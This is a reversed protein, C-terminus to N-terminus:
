REKERERNRERISQALADPDAPAVLKDSTTATERTGSPSGTPHNKINSSQPGAIREIQGGGAVRM